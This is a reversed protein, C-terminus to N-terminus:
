TGTSQAPHGLGTGSWLSTCGQVRHPPFPVTSQPPLSHGVQAVSLPVLICLYYQDSQMKYSSLM